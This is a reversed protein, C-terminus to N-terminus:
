PIATIFSAFNSWVQATKYANVSEAPVQQLNYFKYAEHGYRRFDGLRFFENYAGGRPRNYEWIIVPNTRYYSVLDQINTYMPISMGHSATKYDLETLGELKNFRVPKWKSWRNINQHSCLTGVNNSGSWIASKVMSVSINSNPLAM